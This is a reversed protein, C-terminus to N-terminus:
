VSIFAAGIRWGAPILDAERSPLRRVSRHAERQKASWTDPWAELDSTACAFPATPGRRIGLFQLALRGAARMGQGSSPLRPRRRAEVLNDLQRLLLAITGSSGDPLRGVPIEPALSNHLDIQGFPNDTFLDDDDDDAPNPVKFFPVVDHGGLLLIGQRVDGNGPQSSLEISQLVGHAVRRVESAERGFIPEVNFDCLGLDDDVYVHYFATGLAGLEREVAKLRRELRDLGEAGYRDLIARRISVAVLLEGCTAPVLLSVPIVPEPVDPEVLVPNQDGDAEQDDQATVSTPALQDHVKATTADDNRSDELNLEMNTGLGVLGVPLLVTPELTPLWNAIDDGIFRRVVLGTVDDVLISELLQRGEEEGDARATYIIGAIFRPKIALPHRALVQRCVKAAEELRDARWLAEARALLAATDGPRRAVLRGAGDVASAFQRAQLLERTVALPTTAPLEGNEDLLDPRLAILQSRVIDLSPQLEFARELAASAADPRGAALHALGLSALANVHEPDRIVVHEFASCAEDYKDDALFARGVLFWTTLDAPVQDLIAECMEQAGDLDRQDLADCVATHADSLSMLRNNMM